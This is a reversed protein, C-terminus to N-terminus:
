GLCFCDFLLFLSSLFFFACTIARSVLLLLFPLGTWGLIVREEMESGDRRDGCIGDGLCFLCFCLVLLGGM